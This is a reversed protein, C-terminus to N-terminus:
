RYLETWTGRYIQILEAGYTETDVLAPLSEIDVPVPAFSTTTTYVTTYVTEYTTEYTVVETTTTTTTSTTGDVFDEFEKGVTKVAYKKWEDSTYEHGCPGKWHWFVTTEWLLGDTIGVIKSGAYTLSFDDNGGADV